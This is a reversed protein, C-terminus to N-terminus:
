STMTAQEFESSKQGLENRLRLPNIIQNLHNMKNMQNM